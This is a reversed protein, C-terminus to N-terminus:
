GTDAMGAPWSVCRSYAKALMEAPPSHTALLGLCSLALQCASCASLCAWGCTLSSSETPPQLWDPKNESTAALWPLWRCKAWDHVAKIFALPKSPSSTSQSN